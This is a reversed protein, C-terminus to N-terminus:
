DYSAGAGNAAGALSLGERGERVGENPRGGVNIPELKRSAIFENILEPSWIQTQGVIGRNMFDDINHVGRQRVIERFIAVPDFVQALFPARAVTEFTKELVQAAQQRDQPLVGEEAPYSFVGTLHNRSTPFFGNVIDQPRVGLDAATHGAIELFQPLSMNEQRLIAMQETLPAFGESSFLDAIMKMRSGSSRFVGSLELATRRGPETQGFMAASSGTIREWLELIMKADEIHGRTIDVVALQKIAAAPDTGYASPLLRIIKGANPTLLDRVDLRSPDILFM